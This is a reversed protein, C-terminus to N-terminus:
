RDSRPRIALRAPVCEPAARERALSESEQLAKPSWRVFQGAAHPPHPRLHELCVGVSCHPCIAVAAREEKSTACVYCNM